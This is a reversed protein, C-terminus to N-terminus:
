TPTSWTYTWRHRHTHHCMCSPAHMDVPLVSISQISCFLLIIAIDLPPMASLPSAQVTPETHLVRSDFRNRTVSHFTSLLLSLQVQQHACLWTISTSLSHICLYLTNNSYFFVYFHHWQPAAARLLVWQLNVPIWVVSSAYWLLSMSCLRFVYLFNM